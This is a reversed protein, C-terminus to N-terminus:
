NKNDKCYTAIFAEGAAILEDHDGPADLRDLLQATYERLMRGAKPEGESQWKELSLFPWVPSQNMSNRFHKMTLPSTLFNGGPGIGKIDTIGVNEEDLSFGNAFERSLRIVEDAYVVTAPSFALSDFNGGVFPVLGVKGLCSTLHNMWLAGGAQLDPGWGAGSGSTGCHPLRYFAMMEACALNLLMTQPSYYSGMSKMDFAAPLSGLIVGAGQKLLQAFVLGALLEATLLTLTGAPTIPCTAGSMGYNSFILPLGREVTAAMKTTTESNLVLPTIPNFYPIVFPRTRFDGVLHECMDLVAEFTSSESVLLVIPKTSNAVMELSGFLDATQPPIDQLIGPTSIVDFGPLTEGLRAAQVMHRREFPVLADTEPDQYYLNTVGIGFVTDTQGDGDLTFAHKGLRNFVEVRSPAVEIAWDILERPIFVRGDEAPRGTAKEFVQVAQRDDVRVGVEALVTLANEHVQEIQAETLVAIKPNVKMAEVRGKM